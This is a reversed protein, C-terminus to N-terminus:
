ASSARHYALDELVARVVSRALLYRQEIEMPLEVAASVGELGLWEHNEVRDSQLFLFLLELQVLLVLVELPLRVLFSAPREGVRREERVAGQDVNHRLAMGGLRLTLKIERVSRFVIRLTL